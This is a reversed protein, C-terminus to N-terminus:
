PNKLLGLPQTCQLHKKRKYVARQGVKQRNITLQNASTLKPDPEKCRRPLKAFLDPHHQKCHELAWPQWHLNQPMQADCVSCKPQALSWEQDNIKRKTTQDLPRMHPGHLYEFWESDTKLMKPKRLACMSPCDFQFTQKHVAMAKLSATTLSCATMKTTIHNCKFMSMPRSHRLKTALNPEIAYQANLDPYFQFVKLESAAFLKRFLKFSSQPYYVVESLKEFVLRKTFMPIAPGGWDSGLVAPDQRLHYVTPGFFNRATDYVDVLQQGHGNVVKREQKLWYV